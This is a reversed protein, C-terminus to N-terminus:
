RQQEGVRRDGSNLVAVEGMKRKLMSQDRHSSRVLMKNADERELLQLNRGFHQKLITKNDETLKEPLITIRKQTEDNSQVDLYFSQSNTMKLMRRAKVCASPSIYLFLLPMSKGFHALVKWVDFMPINITVLETTNIIAPVKFQVGKDTITIKEKPLVKYNGIRISSCPLSCWQGPHCGDVINADPIVCGEGERDKAAMTNERLSTHIEIRSLLELKHMFVENCEVCKEFDYMM